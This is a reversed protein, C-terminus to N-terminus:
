QESKKVLQFTGYVYCIKVVTFMALSLTPEMMNKRLFRTAAGKATASPPPLRVFVRKGEPVHLHM